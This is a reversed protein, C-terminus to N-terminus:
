LNILIQAIKENMTKTYEKDWKFKRYQEDYRGISIPSQKLFSFDLDEFALFFSMEVRLVQKKKSNKPVDRTDILLHKGVHNVKSFYVKYIAGTDLIATFKGGQVVEKSIIVGNKEIEVTAIHTKSQGEVKSFTANLTLSKIQSFALFPLCFLLALVSRMM